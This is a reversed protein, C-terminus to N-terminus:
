KILDCTSDIYTEYKGELIVKIKHRKLISIHLPTLNLCKTSVVNNAYSKQLSSICQMFIIYSDNDLVRVGDIRLKDYLTM